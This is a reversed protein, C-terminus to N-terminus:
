AFILDGDKDWGFGPPSKRDIWAQPIFSFDLPTSVGEGALMVAALPIAALKGSEICEALVCARLALRAAFADDAKRLAGALKRLASVLSERYDQSTEFDTKIESVSAAIEDAADSSIALRSKADLWTALTKEDPQALFAVQAALAASEAREPVNAAFAEIAAVHKEHEARAAALTEKTHAAARAAALTKRGTTADSGTLRALLGPLLNARASDAFAPHAFKSVLKDLLPIGFSERVPALTSM